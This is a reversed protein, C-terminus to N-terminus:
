MVHKWQVEVVSDSSDFGMHRSRIHYLVWAGGGAAGKGKGEYGAIMQVAGGIALSTTGGVKVATVPPTCSVNSAPYYLDFESSAADCDPRVRAVPTPNMYFRPSMGLPNIGVNGVTIVGASSEFGREDINRELLEISMEGGGDAQHFATKYLRENRAIRTEVTTTQTAYIGIVALLGIMLMALILASGKETEMTKM